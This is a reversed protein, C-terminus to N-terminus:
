VIPRLNIDIQGASYNYSIHHLQSSPKISYIIPAGDVAGLKLHFDCLDSLDAKCRTSGRVTIILLDGSRKVKQVARIVWKPVDEHGFMFELREAALFMLCPNKHLRKMREVQRSFIEFTRAISSSSLKFFCVGQRYEDFSGIRFRAEVEKAPIHNKASSYAMEPTISGSLVVVSSGKNAIFNNRLTAAIPYHGDSGIEQGIELLIASGRRVGGGLFENFDKSGSM